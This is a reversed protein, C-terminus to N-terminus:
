ADFVKEYAAFMREAAYVERAHAQNVAGTRMRLDEQAVLAEFSELLAADDYKPTVFAKSDDPLMAKVDGVDYSAIARGAAMAQLISNPMQETDSTMAFIDIWGLMKDVEDCHGAFVVREGLGLERALKELAPREGGDGVLLLRLPSAAKSSNVELLKAFVQILRAINKEARLPAVTGIVIEGPSKTFGAPIGQVAARGFAECDVGNPVHQVKRKPLKWVETAIRLLQFSPVIIQATRALAVRRFYVRRPIQREAEEVGFGSELHVHRCLPSLTNALAWETSGWNFTLLLDPSLSKVYSRITRLRGFLGTDPGDFALVETALDPNLRSRCDTPGDLSLITHRYRNGFHNIISSIRIPVGGHAFTPFVHLLHPPAPRNSGSM